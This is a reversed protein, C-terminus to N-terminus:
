SKERDHQEKHKRKIRGCHFQGIGLNGKNENTISRPDYQTRQLFCALIGNSHHALTRGLREKIRAMIKQKELFTLFIGMKSGDDIQKECKQRIEQHHRIRVLSM